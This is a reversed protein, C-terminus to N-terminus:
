AREEAALRREICAHLQQRVRYMLPAIYSVARNFIKALEALSVPPNAYRRLLLERTEQDLKEVCKMLADRRRDEGENADVWAAAEALSELAKPDVIGMRANTRYHKLIRRRAIERAWRLFDADTTPPNETKVVAVAVTQLIDDADDRNRVCALIYARLAVSHRMLLAPIESHEAQDRDYKEESSDMKLHHEALSKSEQHKGAV